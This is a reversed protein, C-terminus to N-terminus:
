DVLTARCVVTGDPAVLAVGTADSEEVEATGSWAGHGDTVELAGVTLPREDGRELRIDYSGSMVGYAVSVGVAAPRGDSLFAWGVRSGDNGVMPVSRVDSVATPASSSPEREVVRVVVISVIAAAAATAAVVTVWRRVARRRRRGLIDLVNREFGAPPEAEPALLPLADAADTLEGVFTRCRGCDDIHALVEAREAGSLVGLALEPALDRTEACSLVTSM